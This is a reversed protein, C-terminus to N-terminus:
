RRVLWYWHSGVWRRSSPRSNQMDFAPLFADSIKEPTLMLGSPATNLAWVLHTAGPKLLQALQAVYDLQGRANLCHFCGIDFGIDYKNASATLASLDTVDGVMFKATVAGYALKEEDRARQKEAKAIAVASFDVGTACLGQQAMYRTFRGVGCGLELVSAGPHQEALERLEPAIRVDGWVTMPANYAQDFESSTTPAKM